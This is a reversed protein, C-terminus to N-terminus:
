NKTDFERRITALVDARSVPDLVGAQRQGAFQKAKQTFIDRVACVARIPLGNVEDAM